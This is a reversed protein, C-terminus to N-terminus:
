DCWKEVGSQVVRNSYILLMRVTVVDDPASRDRLHIIVWDRGVRRGEQALSSQHHHVKSNIWFQSCVRFRRPGCTTMSAFHVSIQDNRSVQNKPFSTIEAGFQVRQFNDRFRVWAWSLACVFQRDKRSCKWPVFSRLMVIRAGGFAFPRMERLGKELCCGLMQSAWSASLHLPSLVCAIWHVKRPSVIDQMTCRESEGMKMERMMTLCNAIKRGRGDRSIFCDGARSRSCWVSM